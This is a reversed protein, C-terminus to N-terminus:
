VSLAALVWRIQAGWVSYHALPIFWVVSSVGIDHCLPAIETIPLANRESDITDWDPMHCLSTLLLGGKGALWTACGVLWGLPAAANCDKIRTSIRGM